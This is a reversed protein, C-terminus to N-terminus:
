ARRISTKVKEVRMDRIISLPSGRQVFTRGNAETPCGRCSRFLVFGDKVDELWRDFSGNSRMKRIVTQWPDDARVGRIM